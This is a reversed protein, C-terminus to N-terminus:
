SKRIVFQKMALIIKEKEEEPIGETNGDYHPSVIVSRAFALRRNDPAWTLQSAGGEGKTVQFAEGGDRFPLVWIQSGDKRDSTFALMSGDPSWRPNSDKHDGPTLERESGSELDLLIITSFTKNKEHDHKTQVFAAYRGEPHIDPASIREVKMLDEFTISRKDTM